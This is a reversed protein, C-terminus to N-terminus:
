AVQSVEGGAAEIKTKASDSFRDATVVLKKTLEGSGLIKIPGTKANVLHAARITEANVTAGDEFARDLQGVNVIAFVTRFKSNNFGRKPIRRYLPM